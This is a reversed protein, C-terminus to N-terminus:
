NFEPITAFREKLFDALARVKEPVHRSYPYVANIEVPPPAYDALIQVLRGAAIDRQAIWVPSAAIGRGALAARRIALGSNSCFSGSVRIHVEQKQRMFVWENGTALYMYRICEHHLLDEPVQPTGRSALYEPSAVIIRRSFGLRLAVLTSDQLRGVRIAVDIGEQVLDVYRATEVLNLQLGPHQAHFELMLDDLGMEGMVTAMTVTLTGGLGSSLKGVSGELASVDNLIKRATEYYAEGAETLRLRRTTRQLLTVGLTAELAALQKSVTPQGAGTERAVASISGTEVIRVFAQMLAFRDM